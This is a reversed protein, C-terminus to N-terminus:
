TLLLFGYSPPGAPMFEMQRGAAAAAAELAPRYDRNDREVPSLVATCCEFCFRAVAIRNMTIRPGDILALDFRAGELAHIRLPDSWVYALVRVRREHKARDETVRAWDPNDECTDLHEVSPGLLASTSAGPGFELVRKPQLRAVVAQTVARDEASWWSHTEPFGSM